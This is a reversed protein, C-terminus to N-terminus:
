SAGIQPESLGGNEETDAGREAEPVNEPGAQSLFCHQQLFLLPFSANLPPAPKPLVVPDVQSWTVTLHKHSNLHVPGAPLARRTTM